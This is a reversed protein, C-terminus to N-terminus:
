PNPVIEALAGVFTTKFHCKRANNALLLAETLKALVPRLFSIECSFPSSPSSFFFFPPPTSRNENIM